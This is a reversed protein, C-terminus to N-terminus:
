KLYRWYIDLAMFVTIIAFLLFLFSWFSLHQWFPASFGKGTFLFKLIKEEFSRDDKM